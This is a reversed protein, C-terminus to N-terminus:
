RLPKVLVCFELQKCTYNIVGEILGGKSERGHPLHLLSIIAVMGKM